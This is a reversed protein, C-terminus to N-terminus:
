EECEFSGPQPPTCPPGDDEDDSNAVYSDPQMCSQTSIEPNGLGDGDADEYWTAPGPGNCEGCEDEVGDCTPGVVFAVADSSVGEDTDYAFVELEYTGNSTIPLNYTYPANSLTEITEGNLVIVLSTISDETDIEEALIEVSVSGVEDFVSNNTPNIIKLFPPINTSYNITVSPSSTAGLEDTATLTIIHTGESLDSAYLSFNEENSLFGDINSSWSLSTGTLSGEDIDYASGDFFVSQLGFYNSGDIPNQINVIPANNPTTFFGDSDDFYSNFGDTAIVKIIGQNTQNLFYLPIELSTEKRDFSVIKWTYGGDNSYAINYTLSDSDMDNSTWQINVTSDNLSVGGNPNIVEVTPTNQTRSRSLIVDSEYLIRVEYLDPSDLIPIIFISNGSEATISPQFNITEIIDGNINLSQLVYDGTNDINVPHITLTNYFRLLTSNSFNNPDIIGRIIKYELTDSSNGDNSTILDARPVLTQYTNTIQDKLATYTIDSIWRYRSGSMYKGGPPMPLGTGNGCYSMLEFNIRPNIVLDSERYSKFSFDFGWIEEDISFGDGLDIDLPGITAFTDMRNTYTSYINEYDIEDLAYVYPFDNPNASGNESSCDHNNMLGYSMSEGLGVHPNGLNHAIEHAITNRTSKTPDTASFVGWSAFNLEGIRFIAEGGPGSRRASEEVAGYHITRDPDCNEGFFFLFCSQTELRIEDIQEKLRDSATIKDKIGDDEDKVLEEGFFLHRDLSRVVKPIPFIAELRNQLPEILSPDFPTHSTGDAKQPTVRLFKVPLDPVVEFTIDLTCNEDTNSNGCDIAVGRGELVLRIRGEKIWEDPMRFNLSNEMSERRMNIIENKLVPNPPRPDGSAFSPVDGNVDQPSEPLETGSSNFARVRGTFLHPKNAEKSQIHVRVMTAKNAILPIRDAERKKWNQIAQNVEL